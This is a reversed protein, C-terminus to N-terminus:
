CLSFLAAVVAGVGHRRATNMWEIRDIRALQRTMIAPVRFTVMNLLYRSYLRALFRWDPCVLGSRQFM